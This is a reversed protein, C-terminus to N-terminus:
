QSHAGHYLHSLFRWTIDTISPTLQQTTYAAAHSRSEDVPSTTEVRYYGPPLDSFTWTAKSAGNGAAIFRYDGDLAASNKEGQWGVGIETYEPSGNDILRVATLGEVSTIQNRSLYLQELESM